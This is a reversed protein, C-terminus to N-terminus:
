HLLLLYIGGFFFLGIGLSSYYIGILYACEALNEAEGIGVEEEVGDDHEEEMDDLAGDGVDDEGRTTDDDIEENDLDQSRELHDMLVGVPPIGSLTISLPDAGIARPSAGPVDVGISADLADAQATLEAEAQMLADEAETAQALAEVSNLNSEPNGSELIEAAAQAQKERTLFTEKLRSGVELWKKKAYLLHQTWLPVYFYFLHEKCRLISEMVHKETHLENPMLIVNQVMDSDEILLKFFHFWFEVDHCFVPHMHNWHVGCLEVHRQVFKKKYDEYSASCAEISPVATYLRLPAPNKDIPMDLDGKIWKLNSVIFPYLGGEPASLMFSGNKSWLDRLRNGDFLPCVIKDRQNPSKLNIVQPKMVLGQETYVTKTNSGHKLVKAFKAVRVVFNDVLIILVITVGLLNMSSLLALYISPFAALYADAAVNVIKAVTDHSPLLGVSTLIDHSSEVIGGGAAVGIAIQMLLLSIVQQGASAMYAVVDILVACM